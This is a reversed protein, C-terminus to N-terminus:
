RRTGHTELVETLFDRMQTAKQRQFIFDAYSHTRGRLVGWALRLRTLLSKTPHIMMTMFLLDDGDWSCEILSVTEECTGDCRISLEKEQSM